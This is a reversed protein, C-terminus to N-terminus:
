NLSPIGRDPVYSLLPPTDTVAIFKGGSTYWRDGRCRSWQIQIVLSVPEADLLDFTVIAHRTLMPEDHTFGIGRPSVNTTYALTYALGPAPLRLTAGEVIVPTVYVPRRVPVRRCARRETSLFARRGQDMRVRRVMKRVTRPDFHLVRTKAIDETATAM